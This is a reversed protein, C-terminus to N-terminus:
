GALGSFVKKFLKKNKVKLIEALMLNLKDTNLGPTGFIGFQRGSIDEVVLKRLTKEKIGTLKSIRPVQDLAAAISIYPGLGSGSGTVIDVPVNGKNVTPNEILFKDILKKEIAIYKGNTPAYNSGSSETGNYGNGAYSPRGNFIYPSTFKEGILMSGIPKSNKYIISGGAQFPFFVKGIGWIFFTYAISCIVYLLLTIKIMRILEKAM